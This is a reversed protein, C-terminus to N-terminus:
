RGSYLPDRSLRRGADCRSADRRLSGGQGIPAGEQLLGGCEAAGEPERRQCLKWEGGLDRERTRMGSARGRREADEDETAGAEGSRLLDLVGDRASMADGQEITAHRPWAQELSSDGFLQN